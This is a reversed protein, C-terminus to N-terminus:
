DLLSKKQSFKLLLIQVFIVAAGILALTLAGLNEIAILAGYGEGEDQPVMIVLQPNAINLESANRKVNLVLTYRHGKQARFVGIHREVKDSWVGGPYYGSDGESIVSQGEFLSWSIDILNPIGKCWSPRVGKPTVTGLFCEMQNFGIKKDFQILIEYNGDLDAGLEPTKIVGQSLSLPLMLPKWNRGHEDALSKAYLMAALGFFGIGIWLGVGIRRRRRSHVEPDM